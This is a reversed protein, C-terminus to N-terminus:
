CYSGCCKVTVFEELKSRLQAKRPSPRSWLRSYWGQQFKDREHLSAWSSSIRGLIMEQQDDARPEAQLQAALDDASADKCGGVLIQAIPSRSIVPM